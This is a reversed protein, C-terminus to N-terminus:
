NLYNQLTKHSEIDTDVLSAGIYTENKSRLVYQPRCEITVPVESNPL